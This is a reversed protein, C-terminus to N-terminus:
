ATTTPAVTLPVHTQRSQCCNGAAVIGGVLVGLGIVSAIVATRNSQAASVGAPKGATLSGSGAMVASPVVLTVALAFVLLKQM